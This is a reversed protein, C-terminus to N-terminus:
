PSRSIAAQYAVYLSNPISGFDLCLPVWWYSFAGELPCVWLAAMGAIGAVWPAPSMRHDGARIKEFFFRWNFIALGVFFGGAIVALIWRLAEM